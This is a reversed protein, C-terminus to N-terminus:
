GTKGHNTRITPSDVVVGTTGDHYHLAFDCQGHSQEPQYELTGPLIRELILKAVREAHNMRASVAAEETM